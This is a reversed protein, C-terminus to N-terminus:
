QPMRSLVKPKVIGYPSKVLGLDACSGNRSRRSAHETAGGGFSFGGCIIIDKSPGASFNQDACVPV